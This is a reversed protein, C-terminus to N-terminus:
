YNESHKLLLCERQDKTDNKWISLTDVNLFSFSGFGCIPYMELWSPFFTDSVLINEATEQGTPNQKGLLTKMVVSVWAFHFTARPVQATKPLLERFTLNWNNGNTTIMIWKSKEQTVEKHWDDDQSARPVNYKWLSVGCKDEHFKPSLPLSMFLYHPWGLLYM